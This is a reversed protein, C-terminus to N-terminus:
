AFREALTLEEPTNVGLIQGNMEVPIRYIYIENEERKRVEDFISTLYYEGSKNKNTIKSLYTRLVMNSFLYIGVNVERNELEEMSQCDKKEVIRLFARDKSREVKRLIRGYDGPNEMMASMLGMEVREEIMCKRVFDGLLEAKMNPMDGNLVLTYKAPNLNPLVCQLAGGTGNVERQLVLQVKSMVLLRTKALVAQILGATEGNVVLFIEDCQIRGVQELIHVLMEKGRVKCLVKPIAGCRMRTSHGAALIVIQLASGEKQPPAAQQPIGMNMHFMKEITNKSKESKDKIM